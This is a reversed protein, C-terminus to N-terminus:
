EQKGQNKKVVSIFEGWLEELSKGTDKEFLEDKYTGERLAANLENVLNKDYTKESWALFAATTRYGDRYSARKPNVVVKTEPEYHFFRVYDAIGEVLWGPGRRPYAQIVHTLEHIVMGYDEPHEEVWRAAIRITHGTTAALGNYEKKFIVNVEHPPTFHDSALLDNIIPYWKEILTKASEGWEKVKPEESTDVTVTVTEVSKPGPLPDLGFACAESLILSSLIAYTFKRVPSATTM